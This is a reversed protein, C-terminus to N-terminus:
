NLEVEKELMVEKKKMVEEFEILVNKVRVYRGDNGSEISSEFNYFM